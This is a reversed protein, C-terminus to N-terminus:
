RVDLLVILNARVVPRDPVERAVVSVHDDRLVGVEVLQTENDAM